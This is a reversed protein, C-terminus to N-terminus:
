PAASIAAAMSSGTMPASAQSGADAPTSETPAGALQRNVLDANIREARLTAETSWAAVTRGAEVDTRM